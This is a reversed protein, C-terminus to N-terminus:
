ELERELAIKRTHQDKWFVGREPSLMWNVGDFRFIDGHSPDLVEASMVEIDSTAIARGSGTYPEQFSGGRDIIARIDRQVGGKPTYRVPEAFGNETDFYAQIEERIM